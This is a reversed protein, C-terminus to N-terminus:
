FSSQHTPPPPPAWKPYTCLDLHTKESSSFTVPFIVAESGIWLCVCEKQVFINIVININVIKSLPLQVTVIVMSAEAMSVFSLNHMVFPEVAWIDIILRTLPAQSRMHQYMIFELLTFTHSNCWTSRSLPGNLLFHEQESHKRCRAPADPLHEVQVIIAYLWGEGPCWISSCSIECKLTPPPFRSRKSFCM